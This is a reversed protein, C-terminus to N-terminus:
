KFSQVYDYLWACVFGMAVIFLAASVIGGRHQRYM